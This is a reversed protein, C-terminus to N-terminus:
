VRGTDRRRGRRLLRARGPLSACRCRSGACPRGRRPCAAAPGARGPGAAARVVLDGHGLQDFVRDVVGTGDFRLARDIGMDVAPTTTSPSSSRSRWTMPLRNVLTRTCVGGSVGISTLRNTVCRGSCTTRRRGRALRRGSAVDGVDEVAEVTGIRAARAVAAAAAQAQRDRGADDLRVAARDRVALREAAPRRERHLQRAGPTVADHEAFSLAPGSPGAKSRVPRRHFRLNRPRPQIPQDGPQGTM